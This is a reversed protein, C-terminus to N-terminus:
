CREGEGEIRQIKRLTNEGAIIVFTGDTGQCMLQIGLKWMVSGSSCYYVAPVAM